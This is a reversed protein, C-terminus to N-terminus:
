LIINYVWMHRRWRVFVCLVDIKKKKNVEINYRISKNEFKYPYSKNDRMPKLLM